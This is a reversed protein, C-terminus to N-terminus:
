YPDVGCCGVVLVNAALEGSLIREVRDEVANELDPKRQAQPTVCRALDVVCYAPMMMRQFLLVFAGRAQPQRLRCADAIPDIRHGGAVCRM